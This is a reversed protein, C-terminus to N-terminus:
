RTQGKKRLGVQVRNKKKGEAEGGNAKKDNARAEEKEPRTHHFGIPSTQAEWKVEGIETSRYWQESRQKIM